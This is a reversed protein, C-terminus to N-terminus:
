LDAESLWAGHINCKEIVAFRGKDVKLHFGAAPNLNVSTLVVRAIFKKDLYCDLHMIYHETLMPHTTAGIKINVDICGDPILGCKKEINIQPIHKKNAELKDTATSPEVIADPKEQFSKKAWCAPCIEPTIGDLAIYGCNTCVIGKM